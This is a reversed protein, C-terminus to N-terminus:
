NIGSRNDVIVSNGEVFPIVPHPALVQVTRFKLSVNCSQPLAIEEPLEYTRLSHLINTLADLFGVLQKEFVVIRTYFWWPKLFDSLVLREGQLL